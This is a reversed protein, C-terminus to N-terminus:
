QCKDTAEVSKIDWDKELYRDELSEKKQARIDRANDRSTYVFYEYKAGKQIGEPARSTTRSVSSAGVTYINSIEVGVVGAQPYHYTVIFFEYKCGGTKSQTSNSNSSTTTTAKPSTSSTKKQNSSSADDLIVAATVVAAAGVITGVTSWFNRRKAKKAADASQSNQQTTTLKAAPDIPKTYTPFTFAIASVQVGAQFLTANEGKLDYLIGDPCADNVFTGILVKGEGPIFEIGDGQFRENVFGGFYYHVVDKSDKWTLAGIGKNCDGMLCGVETDVPLNGASYYQFVAMDKDFYLGEFDQFGKSSAGLWMEDTSFNMSLSVTKRELPVQPNKFFAIDITEISNPKEAQYYLGAGSPASNLSRGLYFDKTDKISYGFGNACDGAKCDGTQSWVPSCLLFVYFVALYKMFDNM